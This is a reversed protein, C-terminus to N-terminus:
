FAADGNETSKKQGGSPEEKEEKKATNPRAAKKHLESEISKPKKEAM